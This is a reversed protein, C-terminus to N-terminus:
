SKSGEAVRIGKYVQKGSLTRLITQAPRGIRHSLEAATMPRNGASLLARFVAEILSTRETIFDPHSSCTKLFNYTTPDVHAIEATEPDVWDYMVDSSADAIEFEEFEECMQQVHINLDNGSQEWWDYDIHFRTEM